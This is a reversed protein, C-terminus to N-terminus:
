SKQLPSPHPSNCINNARSRELFSLIHLWLPEPGMSWGRSGSTPKIYGTREYNSVYYSRANLVRVRTAVEPELATM